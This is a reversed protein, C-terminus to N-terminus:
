GDKELFGSVSYYGVSYRKIQFDPFERKLANKFKRAFSKFDESITSGWDEIARGDFEKAFKKM